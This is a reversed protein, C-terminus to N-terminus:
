IQEDNGRLREFDEKADIGTIEEFIKLDFNPLNFFKLKNLDTDQAWGNKCMEKYGFVKLYGGVTEWDSHAQKEEGSMDSGAIWKTLQYGHLSPMLGLIGERTLDTPQNFIYVPMSESCFFRVMGHGSNWDGSNSNGSNRHGSNWDGSNSNGSNSNGSNRDGSNRDGSNSNGTNNTGTNALDLVEHWTLEKVIKIFESAIKSDDDHTEIQGWIQVIAVKNDPNFSYYNFCDALKLCSHFGSSCAKVVGKHQYTKGIEFQFERCRFDPNFVKYATIKKKNQTKM